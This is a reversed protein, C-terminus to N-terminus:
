QFFWWLRIRDSCLIRHAGSAIKQSCNGSSVGDLMDPGECPTPDGPPLEAEQKGWAVQIPTILYKPSAKRSANKDSSDWLLMPYTSNSPAWLSQWTWGMVWCLVSLTRFKILHVQDSTCTCIFASWLGQDLLNFLLKTALVSFSYWYHLLYYIILINWSIWPYFPNIRKKKFM